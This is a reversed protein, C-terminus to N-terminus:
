PVQAADVSPAVGAPAGGGLVLTSALSVWGRKGTGDEVLAFGGEAALVTVEAGPPVTHSVRADAEPVLRARAAVEGVVVGVPHRVVASFGRVAATTLVLGSAASVLAARAFTTRSGRPGMRHLIMLCSALCVLLWAVVGLEGPTVLNMWSYPLQVPPPVAGDLRSRGLALNHRVFNDRPRQRAAARFHAVSRADDGMKSWAIGLNYHLKGSGTGAEDASHWIEIAGALEGRDLADAGQELTGACLMPLLLAALVASHRV